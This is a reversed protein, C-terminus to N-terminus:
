TALTAFLVEVNFDVLQLIQSRTLTGEYLGFHNKFAGAELAFKSEVEKIQHPQAEMTVRFRANPDYSAALSALVGLNHQSVVEKPLDVETSFASLTPSEPVETVDIQTAKPLNESDEVDADYSSIATGEPKKIMEPNADLDQVKEYEFVHQDLFITGSETDPQILMNQNFEITKVWGPLLPSFSMGKQNRVEYRNQNKKSPHEEFLLKVDSSSLLKINKTSIRYSYFNASFFNKKNGSKPQKEFCLLLQKKKHSPDLIRYCSDAFSMRSDVFLASLAFLLAFFFKSFTPIRPFINVSHM